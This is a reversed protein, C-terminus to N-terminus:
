IAHTHPSLFFSTHFVFISKFIIFAAINSCVFYMWEYMCAFMCVYMCLYICVDMCGYMWVDM